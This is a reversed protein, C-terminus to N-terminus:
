AIIKWVMFLTHSNTHQRQSEMRSTQSVAMHISNIVLYKTAELAITFPEPKNTLNEIVCVKSQKQTSM